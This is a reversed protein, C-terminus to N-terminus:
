KYVCQIVMAKVQNVPGVRSEYSTICEFGLRLLVRERNMNSDILKKNKKEKIGFEHSISQNM